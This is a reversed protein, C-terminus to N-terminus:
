VGVEIRQPRQAEHPHEPGAYVKLKRAAPTGPPRPFMGKVAKRIVEEPRRELMEGLTRSRIGGPVATRPLAQREAEEGHGQRPRTSWSWSTGPRWHPTYEPKRKSAPTPSSPGLRGLTRGTPTSSMGTASATRAHSRQDEDRHAPDSWPRVAFLRGMLKSASPGRCPTVSVARGACSLRARRSM